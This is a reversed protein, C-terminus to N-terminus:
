SFDIKSVFVFPEEVGIKKNLLAIVGEFIAHDFHYLSLCINNRHYYALM